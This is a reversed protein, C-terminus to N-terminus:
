ALLMPTLPRASWWCVEFRYPKRQIMEPPWYGRTGTKSTATAGDTGILLALGLDILQLRGHRDLLLNEPKLDRYVCGVAHLAELGLTASAVYFAAEAETFPVERTGARCCHALMRLLMRM